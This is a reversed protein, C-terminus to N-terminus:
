EAYYKEDLASYIAKMNEEGEVTAMKIPMFEDDSSVFDDEIVEEVHIWVNFKRPKM